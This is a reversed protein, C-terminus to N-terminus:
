CINKQCRFHKFGYEGGESKGTEITLIGKGRIVSNLIQLNDEFRNVGKKGFHQELQGRKTEVDM